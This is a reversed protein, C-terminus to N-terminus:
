TSRHLSATRQSSWNKKFGLMDAVVSRDDRDFAGLAQSEKSEAILQVGLAVRAEIHAIPHKSGNAL